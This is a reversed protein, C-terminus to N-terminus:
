PGAAPEPEAPQVLAPLLEWGLRVLRSGKRVYLFTQGRALYRRETQTEARPALRRRANWGLSLRHIFVGQEDKRLESPAFMLLTHDGFRARLGAHGLEGSLNVGALVFVSHPPPEQPGYRLFADNIMNATAGRAVLSYVGGVAHPLDPGIRDLWRVLLGSAAAQYLVLAAMLARAIGIRAPPLGLLGLLGLGMAAPTAYILYYRFLHNVFFFAPALGLALWVALWAATRATSGGARSSSRSRWLIAGFLLASPIAWWRNAAPFWSEPWSLVAAWLWRLYWGASELLRLPEFSVAYPHRPPLDLPSPQLLKYAAYASFILLHPWVRLVAQRLRQGWPREADSILWVHALLIGPLLCGGEKFGLSLLYALASIWRFGHLYALLAAFFFFSCGFEGLGTGWLLPDLHITAAGAYLFAASWAPWSRGFVNQFIGALMLANAIHIGIQIVHYALPNGSFGTYVVGFAAMGLARSFRVDRFTFARDLYSSLGWKKLAGIKLYDDQVYPYHFVPWYIALTVAALAAGLLLVRIRGSSFIPRNM